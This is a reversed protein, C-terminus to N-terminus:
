KDLIMAGRGVRSTHVVDPTRNALAQYPREGNYFVFYKKL